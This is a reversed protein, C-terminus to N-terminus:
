FGHGHCDIEEHWSAQRPMIFRQTSDRGQLNFSDVSLPTEQRHLKTGTAEGVTVMKDLIHWDPATTVRFTNGQNWYFFVTGMSLPLILLLKTTSLSFRELEVRCVVGVAANPAPLLVVTIIGYTCTELTTTTSLLISSHACRRAVVNGIGDQRGFDDQCIGLM